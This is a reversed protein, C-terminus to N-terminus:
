DFIKMVAETDSLNEFFYDPNAAKLREIVIEKPMESNTAVAVSKIGLERSIPISTISDDFFYVNNRSYKQGTIRQAKEIAVLLRGKRDTSDEPTTKFLFYKQLKSKDLILNTIFLINGTVIGRPIEEKVLSQMLKEYGPLVNVTGNRIAQPYLKQLIPVVLHMRSEIFEDSYDYQHLVDRYYRLVERVTTENSGGPNYKGRFDIGTLGYVKHFMEAYVPTHVDYMDVATGDLDSLVLIKRM